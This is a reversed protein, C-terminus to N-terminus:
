HLKPVWVWSTKKPRSRVAKKPVQVHTQVNSPVERWVRVKEPCTYHLHGLNGCRWCLRQSPLGVYKSYAPRYPIYTKRKEFDIGKKHIVGSKQYLAVIKPDQYSSNGHTKHSAKSVNKYEHSSTVGKESSKAKYGLGIKPVFKANYNKKVDSLKATEYEKVWEKKLNVENAIRSTLDSSVRANEEKLKTRETELTYVKERLVPCTLCDPKDNANTKAVLRNYKKSWGINEDKLNSILEDKVDAEKTLTGIELSLNKVLIAIQERSKAAFLKLYKPDCVEEEEDDSQAMFCFGQYDKSNGKKAKFRMLQNRRQQISEISVLREFLEQPSITQLYPSVLLAKVTTDWTDDLCQLIKEVQDKTSIPRQLLELSRTISLFRSHLDQIYEGEEMSLLEWDHLLSSIKEKNPDEEGPEDENDSLAMLCIDGEEESDTEGWISIFATNSSGTSAKPVPAQTTKKEKTCARAFHGKDGCNYCIVENSNPGNSNRSQKKWFKKITKTILAYDDSEEEDESNEIGLTIKELAKEVMLALNKDKSSKVPAKRKELDMFSSLKGFLDEVDMDKTNSNAMLAGTIHNWSSNLCQLVKTVQKWSPLIEGLFTLNNVLILFRSHFDEISEKEGMALNEWDTLLAMIKDRKTDENGQHIRGLADWKERATLFSSVKAEDNASLGSEIIKVARHNKEEKKFDNEDYDAEPVVTGNGDVIPIDGNKIIRWLQPDVSRVHTEMKKIWKDYEGRKLIPSKWFSSDHGGSGSPIAAKKVGKTTDVVSTGIKEPVIEEEVQIGKGNNSTAM